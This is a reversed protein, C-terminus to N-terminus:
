DQKFMQYFIFDVLRAPLISMIKVMMNHNKKYVRKPKKDNIARYTVDAIISVDKTKKTSGTLLPTIKSLSKKYHTTKENMRKFIPATSKEMNTRFAGPRVTVVKLGIYRLERRLGDTYSEVAHKTTTYYANFPVVAYTGYESSFNIIRGKGKEILPFFINNMRVMGMLNIDVMREMVKIDEEILSGMQMIGAINVIAYLGDTKEFVVDRANRISDESTIDCQIYTFRDSKIEKPDEARDLGFVYYDENQLTREITAKGIGGAAGTIIVYRM